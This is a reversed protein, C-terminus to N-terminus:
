ARELRAAVWAGDERRERAEYGARAYALLAPELAGRRLGSVLIAGLGAPPEAALRAHVEPESVNVVAVAVDPLPATRLDAQEITAAVGNRAVNARAEAAGAPDLELGVVPAWGLKAAAVAVAGAGCGLDALGGRPALGLLLELVLRTTPHGGTGFGTRRALVVDIRDGGPAPATPPRVVLRGGIEHAPRLDDLATQLDGAGTSAPGATLLPGCAAALAEDLGTETPGALAVLETEAGQARLHVGGPVALLVRDLAAQLDGTRVRVAVRRVSV